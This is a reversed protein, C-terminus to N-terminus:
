ENTDATAILGFLGGEDEDKDLFALGLTFFLSCASGTFSRFTGYWALNRHESACHDTDIDELDM